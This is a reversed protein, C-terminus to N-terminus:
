GDGGLRGHEPVVKKFLKFDDESVVSRFRVSRHHERLTEIDGEGPEVAVAGSGLGAIEGMVYVAGGAMGEGTREGANGAVVVVAGSLFAGTFAGANGDIIITGGRAGAGAMEKAGGKVVLLGGRMYVGAGSDVDGHVTVRGASMMDALFKGATGQLNITGGGTFAAFYDGAHGDASLRAGDPLGTAIFDQGALGAIKAGKGQEFQARIAPNIDRSRYLGGRPM